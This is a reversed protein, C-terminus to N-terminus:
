VIKEFQKQCEKGDFKRGLLEFSQLDILATEFKKKLMDKTFKLIIVGAIIVQKINTVETSM